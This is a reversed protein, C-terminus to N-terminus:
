SRGVPTPTISKRTSSAWPTTSRLLLRTLRSESRSQDWAKTTQSVWCKDAVFAEALWCRLCRALGITEASTKTSRPTRGFEGTVYVVTSDLMGRAALTTFLASLATDLEPLNRTKLRNFNDQHTDWGGYGVTVFRVGAEILRVAMLCSQGVSSAGFVDANKELSIDFAERARKSRVMDFAQEGFRDLGKIVDSQKEVCEFAQDLDDLLRERREVDTITLGPRLAVGRVSYPQGPRAPSPASFASHAIGLFGPGQPAGPIAVYPPLDKPSELERTVVSGIAPYELSAIPRNGTTM